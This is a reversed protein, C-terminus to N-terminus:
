FISSLEMQFGMLISKIYFITKEELLINGRIGFKYFKRCIANPYINKPWLEHSIKNDTSTRWGNFKWM